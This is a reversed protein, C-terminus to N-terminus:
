PSVREEIANVLEQVCWTLRRVAELSQWEPGPVEVYQPRIYDVNEGPPPLEVLGSSADDECGMQFTEIAELIESLQEQVHKLDPAIAGASIGAM